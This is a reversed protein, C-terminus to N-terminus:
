QSIELTSHCNENYLQEHGLSLDTGHVSRQAEDTGRQGVLALGTSEGDDLVRSADEPVDGAVDGDPLVEPIVLCLANEPVDGAVNGDPLVEPIVLCLANDPVDGALDGDLIVEPAHLPRSM